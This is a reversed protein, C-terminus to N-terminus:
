LEVQFFHPVTGLVTCYPIICFLISLVTYTVVHSKPVTTTVNAYSYGLYRLFVKLHFSKKKKKSM